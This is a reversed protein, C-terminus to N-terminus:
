NKYKLARYIHHKTGRVRHGRTFKAAYAIRDDDHRIRMNNLLKVYKYTVAIAYSIETTYIYLAYKQLIRANTLDYMYFTQPVSFGRRELTDCIESFIDEDKRRLAITDISLVRGIM